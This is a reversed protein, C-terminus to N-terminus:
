GEKFILFSFHNMKGIHEDDDDNFGISDEDDENFPIDAILCKM